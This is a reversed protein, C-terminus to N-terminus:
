KRDHQTLMFKQNSSKPNFAVWYLYLQSKLQLFTFVSLFTVHISIYNVCVLRYKNTYTLVHIIYNITALGRCRSSVQGQLITMHRTSAHTHVTWDSRM